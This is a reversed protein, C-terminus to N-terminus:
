HNILKPTPVAFAAFDAANDDTDTGNPSRGISSGNPPAPAASGEVFANTAGGYGVSDALANSKDRLGVAGGDAALGGSAFTGDGQTTGSWASGVILAFGNGAITGSDWSFLTVDSTGSQSRYALTWGGLTVATPCSNFIEVFEDSPGVTSGIQVENVMLHCGAANGGAGGAGTGGSAATGDNTSGTTDSGHACSLTLGCAVALWVSCSALLPYPYHSM